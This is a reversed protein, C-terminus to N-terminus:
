PSRLRQSFSFPLRIMPRISSYCRLHLFAKCDWFLGVPAAFGEQMPVTSYLAPLRFKYVFLDFTVSRYVSQPM